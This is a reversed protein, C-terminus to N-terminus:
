YMYPFVSMMMMMKKVGRDWLIDKGKKEDKRREKGVDNMEGKGKGQMSPRMETRGETIEGQSAQGKGGM